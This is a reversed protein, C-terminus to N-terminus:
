FCVQLLASAKVHRALKTDAVEYHYPGFCSPRFPDDVRLLFDAFGLWRGDFFTAQYIVDAGGGMAARTAEAAQTLRAARDEIAEDPEASVIRRGAARLEDLYRQEHELGRKTLIELEADYRFPAPALGALLARNLTTLQECALHAVLDTASYIPKGDILQM